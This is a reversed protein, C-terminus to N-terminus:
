RATIILSGPRGNTVHCYRHIQQQYKPHKHKLRQPIPRQLTVQANSPQHHNATHHLTRLM